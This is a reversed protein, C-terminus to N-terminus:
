TSSLYIYMLIFLIFNLGWISVYVKSHTWFLLWSSSKPCSVFAYKVRLVAPFTHLVAETLANEGYHPLKRVRNYSAKLIISCALRSTIIYDNAKWITCKLTKLKMPHYIELHGNQLLVLFTSPAFLNWKFPVCGWSLISQYFVKYMTVFLVM